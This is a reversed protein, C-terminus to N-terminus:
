LYILTFLLLGKAIVDMYLAFLFEVKLLFHSHGFLGILVLDYCVGFLGVADSLFDEAAFAEM